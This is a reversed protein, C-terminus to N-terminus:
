RRRRPSPVSSVTVPRVAPRLARSMGNWAFVGVLLMFWLLMMLALAILVAGLLRGMFGGGLGGALISALVLGGSRIPLPHYM